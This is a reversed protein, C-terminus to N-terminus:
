RNKYCRRIGDSGVRCADEISAPRPPPAPADDDRAGTNKIADKIENAALVAVPALAVAAVAAAL